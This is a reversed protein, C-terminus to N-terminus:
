AGDARLGLGRGSANSLTVRNGDVEYAVEGSLVALVEHELSQDPCTLRTTALPGFTITDEGVTATGNLTNCGGNGTVTGESLELYAGVDQPVNSVADATIVSDVIWRTGELGVDPEAVERDQLVATADPGALILIDGDLAISPRSDLFGAMWDDQDQLEPPCGILTGGLEGIVLVDDEIRYDGFFSNCGARATIKSPDPFGIELRTNAVLEYGTVETSAYTM